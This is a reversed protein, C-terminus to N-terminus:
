SSFRCTLEVDVGLSYLVTPARVKSVRAPKSTKGVPKVVPCVKDNGTGGLLHRKVEDSRAESDDYPRSPPAHRGQEDSMIVDEDGEGDGDGNGDDEAEEHSAISSTELKVPQRPQPHQVRSERNRSSTRVSRTRGRADGSDAM